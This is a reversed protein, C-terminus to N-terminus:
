QFTLGGDSCMSVNTSTRAFNCTGSTGCSPAGTYGTCKSDNALADKDTSIELKSWIKFAKKDSSVQYVYNQNSTPDIPVTKMYLTAPKNPDTFSPSGGWELPICTGSLTCPSIRGVDSNPYVEYDSWYIEVAQAVNKLDGKRKADRSRSLSSQYSGVGVIALIGIM